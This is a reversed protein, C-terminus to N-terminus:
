IVLYKALGEFERREFLMHFFKAVADAHERAMNMVEPTLEVEDGRTDKLNLFWEYNDLLQSFDEGM